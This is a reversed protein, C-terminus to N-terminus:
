LNKLMYLAFPSPSVFDIKLKYWLLRVANVYLTYWFRLIDFFRM